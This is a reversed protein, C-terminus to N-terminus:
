GTRRPRGGYLEDARAEFAAVMRRVAEGFVAGVLLQLAKSRFKFDIWFDITCSGDRNEEFRWRNTLHHFPGEIYKIHIRRGARDLTARTRFWEEYVKFKVHLDAEVRERDDGLVERNRVVAKTCWPIFEPYSAADAVLDFIQEPTYRVRRRQHYVTM